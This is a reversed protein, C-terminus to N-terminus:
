GLCVDIHILFSCRFSTRVGASGGSREEELKELRDRLIQLEEEDEAARRTEREKERQRTEKLEELEKQLTRMAASQEEARQNM